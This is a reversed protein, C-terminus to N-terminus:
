RLRWTLGIGLLAFSVNPFWVALWPVIRGTTGLAMGFQMIVYYAFLIVISMAVGVFVNRRGTVAGFPLAIFVAVLCTWPSALRSHLQTLLLARREPAMGPHLKIYERIEGLPLQARKSANVATLAGIKLESRILEPTESFVAVELRNTVERYEADGTIGSVSMRMANTFLWTNTMWGGMKSIIIQRNGDPMRWDIKADFFNGTAPNYAGFSWTRSDRENRFNYNRLWQGDSSQEAKRHKVLLAQAQNVSQSFCVNNLLFLFISFAVGVGIYPLSLRWIDVGAARIAVLENNKGLATLTYLMGLLLGVPMVILLFEPLRYAYYLLVEPTSLGYDRYTAVENILDFAIWFVLFAGLCYSLPVFLERLLYRDLLRM